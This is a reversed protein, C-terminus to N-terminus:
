WDIIIPIIVYIHIDDVAIGRPTYFQDNGTGISGIKSVYSLDSKLRKQIRDNDTDAIYIYTDDVAIGRPEAFQNDGSDLASLKSVHSLDSKLRKLLLHNQPNATLCTVFLNETSEGSAVSGIAYVEGEVSDEGVPIYRLVAIGEAEAVPCQIYDAGDAKVFFTNTLNPTTININQM